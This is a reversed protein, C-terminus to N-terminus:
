IAELGSAILPVLEDHAAGHLALGQVDGLGPVAALREGLSRQRRSAQPQDAADKRGVAGTEDSAVGVGQAMRALTEATARVPVAVGAGAMKHGREVDSWQSPSIGAKAAAQRRSLAPEAGERRRRILDAEAPPPPHSVVSGGQSSTCM